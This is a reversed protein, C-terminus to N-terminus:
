WILFPFYFFFITFPKRFQRYVSIINSMYIPYIKKLSKHKPYIEKLSKHRNLDSQAWNSM